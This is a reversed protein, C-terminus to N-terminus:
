TTHRLGGTVRALHGADHRLLLPVGGKAGQLDQMGLGWARRVPDAVPAAQGAVAGSEGKGATTNPDFLAM